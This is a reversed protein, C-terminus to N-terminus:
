AQAALEEHVVRVSTNDVKLPEEARGGLHKALFQETRSYFDMRNPPRAFGHGEDEYLLYEVALGKAKMAEYIQDSEAVKVRPDNRGQGILLPAAIKDVHFLPSIKKNVEEDGEVDGVRQILQKKMPKWYPPISEFLTKIHSPGVIDVGCCYLEPTFTLGALTAYGGYSGGMIAVKKPDAIGQDIAWKVADSLDHQMTGQGWEGDGKHLFAKGYGTSGRFNVQLVAYGRNALWQPQPLCGWGDRAWPGGHVLLVLPVNKAEAGDALVPRTLYAPLTLGDRAPVEVCEMPALKFEDLEPTSTFLFETSKSGDSGRKYLYFATSGVDRSFAVVWTTDDNSRSMVSPEADPVVSRLYEVDAKVTDDLFTWERKHYNFGVAQVVRAEEDVITAGADCRADQAVEASISGDKTSLKVLRGTDSGISTSAYIEDGAKSFMLPSGVEDHPWTYLDRWEADVTDRVRLTKSGDAPNMTMCGRVALEDDTMWSLVDGPNEAVMEAEGTAVDVKYMDFLQENRRNMGVLVVGPFKRDAALNQARVKDGPTLDRAEGGEIPCAWLHFNEDGGVDQLYLMHKGDEAFMFQRIGRHTDNTVQRDDDKGVTRVWVNLVDEKSPALYALFTGCPSITPSTRVPNGFLTKLPIIKEAM